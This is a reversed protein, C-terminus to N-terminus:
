SIKDFNEVDARMEDQLQKVEIFLPHAMRETFSMKNGAILRQRQVENLEDLLANIKVRNPHSNEYERRAKIRAQEANKAAKDFEKVTWGLARAGCVSGFFVFEGSENDKLVKTGKLDTRGCCGCQNIEDTTGIFTYQKQAM